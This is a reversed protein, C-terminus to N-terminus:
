NIVKILQRSVAFGCKISHQKEFPASFDYQVKFFGQWHPCGAACFNKVRVLPFDDGEVPCNVYLDDTIEIEEESCITDPKTM